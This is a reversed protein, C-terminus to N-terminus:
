LSDVVNEVTGIRVAIPVHHSIQDDRLTLDARDNFVFARQILLEHLELADGMDPLQHKRARIVLRGVHDLLLLQEIADGVPNIATGDLPNKALRQLRYIGFVEPLRVGPQLRARHNSLKGQLTPSAPQPPEYWYSDPPESKEGPRSSSSRHSSRQQERFHRGSM